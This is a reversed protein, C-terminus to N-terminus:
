LGSPFLVDLVDMIDDDTSHRKMSREKFEAMKAEVDAPQQQQMIESRGQQPTQKTFRGRSDRGKKVNRAVHQMAEKLHAKVMAPDQNYLEAYTQQDLGESKLTENWMTTFDQQEKQIKQQQEVVERAQQRRVEDAYLEADSEDISPNFYYNGNDDYAM